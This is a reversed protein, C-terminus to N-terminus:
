SNTLQLSLARPLSGSASEVLLMLDLAGIGLCALIYILMVWCKIEKDWVMLPAQLLRAVAYVSVIFAILPIM